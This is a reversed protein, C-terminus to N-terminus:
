AEKKKPRGRPGTLKQKPEPTLSEADERHNKALKLLIAAQAEYEEAQYLLSKIKSQVSQEEQDEIRKKYQNKQELIQDDTLNETKTVVKEIMKNLEDLPMQADSNPTMIVETTKVKMLKRMEHLHELYSKNGFYIKRHLIDHLTQSNQADSSELISNLEGQIPDPLADVDVVLAYDPEDPLRMFVVAVGAGTNKLKGVHKKM